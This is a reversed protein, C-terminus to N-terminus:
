DQETSRVNGHGEGKLLELKKRLAYVIEGEVTLGGVSFVRVGEPLPGKVLRAKAQEKEVDSYVYEPM